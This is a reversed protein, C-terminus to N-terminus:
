PLKIGRRGRQPLIQKEETLEQLLRRVQNEPLHLRQSLSRRGISCGAQNANKIESLIAKKWHLPENNEPLCSQATQYLDEPLNEPSPVTDPYINLLYEVTNQLERINGPWSYQRLYPSLLSFYEQCNIKGGSSPTTEYFHAALPMIDEKRKRLPPLKIPLVNLRYYLDQRFTGEALRKKLDQNTAAIVRVDVPVAKASGVRRIQQEQLVRLLKIQFSLPADGIEDLFLTGKHAEEFLGPAGGRNAGTFAGETYGFLESELISETLAAFNVAIFPGHRRPSANHIGQAFLEKGTGSEGQILIASTSQAMKKALSVSSRIANSQGIVQQLSYLPAAPKRSPKKRAQCGKQMLDYLNKTLRIIDRIYNASLFDAFVNLLKLNILLEVLTTIDIQRTKIDILQEVFNPVLEAEGPTVATKLRPYDLLEPAYPYYNIHNIGLTQLLAITQNASSLLDNVLLIDTGAPIDFLKEVEHYNISRKAILAPCALHTPLEFKAAAEQSAFLILDAQIDPPIQKGLYYSHINVRNGLLKHLQDNFALSTNKGLAIVILNKM